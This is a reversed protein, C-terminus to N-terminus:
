RKPSITENTCDKWRQLRKGALIQGATATILNRFKFSAHQPHISVTAGERVKGTTTQSSIITGQCWKGGGQIRVWVADRVQFWKLYLVAFRLSGEITVKFEYPWPQDLDEPGSCSIANGEEREPSTDSSESSARVGRAVITAKIRSQVKRDSTTSPM